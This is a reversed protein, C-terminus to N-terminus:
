SKELGTCSRAHYVVGQPVSGLIWNLSNKILCALDQVLASVRSIDSGHWVVHGLSVSNSCHTITM